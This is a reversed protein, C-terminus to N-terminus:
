RRQLTVLDSVAANAEVRTKPVHRHQSLPPRVAGAAALTTLHGLASDSDTQEMAPGLRDRALGEDKGRSRVDGHLRNRISRIGIHNRRIAVEM